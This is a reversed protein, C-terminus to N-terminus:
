PTPLNRKECDACPEKESPGVHTRKSPTGNQNPTQGQVSKLGNAAFYGLGAALLTAVVVIVFQRLLSGSSSTPVTDM